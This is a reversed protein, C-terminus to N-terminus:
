RLYLFDNSMLLAHALKAWAADKAKADHTRSLIGEEERLFQQAQKLEAARAARGYTLLYASRIQASEDMGAARVRMALAEAREKVFPSNLLYLAQPAVTTPSRQGTLMGPAPHDFIAFLDYLATRVVPLYISRRTSDYHMRKVIDKPANGGNAYTRNRVEMLSDVPNSDLSGSVALMGDRIEEAMLRRRPFYSLLRNAPDQAPGTAAGQRQYAESSCILQNLKRISWGNDMFWGALWDLLEPHSPAEGRLGFNDPSAVLGQGFQWLWVRNVIVRAALVNRRDTIWGALQLRGSSEKGPQPSAYGGAITPYGRAVLKGPTAPSGRILIHSDAVPGDYPAMAMPVAEIQKELEAISKDLSALAKKTEEENEMPAPKAPVIECYKQGTARSLIWKDFLPMAGDRRLVLKNAGARLPYKGLVFCRQRDATFGGTVEGAASTEVLEGNILIEVPRVENSAYRMELQYEAAEPTEFEYQIEDPYERKTRVVGIGRGFDDNDVTVNGQVYHEAEVVLYPASALMVQRKGRAAKATAGRESKVAELKKQLIELDAAAQAHIPRETWTAVRKNVEMMRTSFFIGAMAYYDATPLPDFKHDHCRACGMTMGLFARSVTDVQEDVVDAVLKPKDLEAISKAGLMLFGTAALSEPSPQAVLDGALQEEVFKNYPKDSQFAGIVYQRYRWAHALAHDVESGNSDAYRAVDLWHRAWHEGYQPSQMLRQVFASLAKRSSDKQFARIEEMTPPLGTLNFRVRRLLTLADARPAAQIRAEKLKQGLFADIPNTGGGVSVKAERLPQFAWHSKRIDVIRKSEVSSGGSSAVNAGDPWPAGMKVWEALDAIQAEQLKGQPPMQLHDNAYRIAQIMLSNEADGPNIAAGLAGGQILAARSDLRLGGRQM